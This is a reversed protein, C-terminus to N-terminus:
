DNKIQAKYTFIFESTAPVQIVWKVRNSNEKVHPLTESLIKFGNPFNQYLEVDTTKDSGNKFTIQYSAEYLKPALQKYEIRKGDASLDFATGTKLRVTEMNATHAINDEGVFLMKDTKDAKYLRIIGKPLAMGLGSEKKNDFTLYVTPKVKKLEQIYMLDLTNDFEYTKKVNISDSSLLAVQKTQNSLIDTKRPLTYLYFDSLTSVAATDMPMAAAEMMVMNKRFRPQVFENVINVDGAVLQLNANKYDTGSNNTLTVLGTLKMKSETSNLEAVYDARWSLGRTLYSLDLKQTEEKQAQVDMVLTPKAWLNDPVKNFIVRGPYQTEIKGNIKLIPNIGNVALLEATETTKIGTAPNIYEVGVTSGVAKQLLSSDSLLDFNFNQELLRIDKGQLLASEPMIQRSVDAFAIANKGASLAVERTDNVLARNENYITIDLNKQAETGVMKASVCLPILVSSVLSSLLLMKYTM